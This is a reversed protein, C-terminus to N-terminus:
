MPAAYLSVLAVNGERIWTITELDGKNSEKVVSRKKYKCHIVLELISLPIGIVSRGNHWKGRDAEKVMHMPAESMDRAIMHTQAEMMNPANAHHIIKQDTDPDPWSPCKGRNTEKAMHMPAETMDRLIMHTQAEM